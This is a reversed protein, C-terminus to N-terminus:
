SGVDVKERETLVEATRVSDWCVARCYQSAYMGRERLRVRMVCEFVIEFRRKIPGRAM